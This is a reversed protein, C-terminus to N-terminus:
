HVHSCEGEGGGGGGGGCCRPFCTIAVVEEREVCVRGWLGLFGLACERVLLAYHEYRVFSNSLIFSSQLCM